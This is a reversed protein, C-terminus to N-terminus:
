ERCRPLSQPTYRPVVPMSPSATSAADRSDVAPSADSRAARGMCGQAATGSELRFKNQAFFNSLLQAVEDITTGSFDLEVGKDTSTFASVSGQFAANTM